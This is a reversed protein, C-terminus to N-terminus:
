AAAAAELRSDYAAFLALSRILRPYMGVFPLPLRELADIARAADITTLALALADIGARLHAPLDALRDVAYPVGDTAGAREAVITALLRHRPRALKTLEDSLVVFTYRGPM